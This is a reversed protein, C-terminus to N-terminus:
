VGTTVTPDYRQIDRARAELKSMVRHVVESDCGRLLRRSADVSAALLTDADDRRGADVLRRYEQTVEILVHGSEVRAILIDTEARRRNALHGATEVIEQPMAERSRIGEGNRAQRLYWTIADDIDVISVQPHAALLRAWVTRAAGFRNPDLWQPRNLLVAYSTVAQDVLESM